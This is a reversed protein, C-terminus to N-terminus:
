FADVRDLLGLVEALADDRAALDDWDADLAAKLSSAALQPVGAQAAVIAAGAAQGRGQLVAIVGLAKRLAHGMLNFTDEVRGAGWLPSSDLAARLARAGFGGTRAALEVTREILRRDLNKEILRKRFGVLTGKSFPPEETGTCDLVLQWRRDRVTGGM